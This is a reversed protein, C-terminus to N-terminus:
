DQDELRLSLTEVRLDNKSDCEVPRCCGSAREEDKIIESQEHWRKKDPEGTQGGDFLTRTVARCLLEPSKSIRTMATFIFTAQL